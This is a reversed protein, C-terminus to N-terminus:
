KYLYVLKGLTQTFKKYYMREEVKLGKPNYDFVFTHYENKSPELQIMKQLTGNTNYTFMLDPLLQKIKENFRVIDTLNGAADYYYMYNATIIKKREHIEDTINGDGDAMFKIITTDANGKILFMKNPNGDKDYFWLHTETTIYNNNSLCTTNIAKIRNEDNYIISTTAVDTESSDISKIVKNQANYLVITFVNKEKDTKTTTIAKTFADNNKQVVNFENDLENDTFYSQIQITKINNAKYLAWQKQSEYNSIIDKYFYQAQINLGGIILALTVFVLKIM